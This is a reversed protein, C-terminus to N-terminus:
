APHCVACRWGYANAGVRPEWADLGCCTCVQAPRTNEDGAPTPQQAPRAYAPRARRAPRVARADSHAAQGFMDVLTENM